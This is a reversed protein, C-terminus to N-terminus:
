TECKGALCEHMWCHKYCNKLNFIIAVHNSQSQSLRNFGFISERHYVGRTLGACFSKFYQVINVVQPCCRNVAACLTRRTRQRWALSTPFTSVAAEVCRLTHATGNDRQTGDPRPSTTSRTFRGGQHRLQHSGHTPQNQELHHPDGRLLQPESQAGSGSPQMKDNLGRVWEQNLPRLWIGMRELGKSLALQGM